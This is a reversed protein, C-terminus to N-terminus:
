EGKEDEHQIQIIERVVDYPYIEVKRDKICHYIYEANRMNSFKQIIEVNNSTFREKSSKVTIAKYVKGFLVMLAWGNVSSSYSDSILSDIRSRSQLTLM